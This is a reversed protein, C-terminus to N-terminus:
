NADELLPPVAVIAIGEDLLTDVEEGSATGRIGRPPVEGYHIKRAEEPFRAGVDEAAALLTRRVERLLELDRPKAGITESSV